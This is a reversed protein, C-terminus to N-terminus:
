TRDERKGPFMAEAMRSLQNMSEAVRESSAELAWKNLIRVLCAVHYCSNKDVIGAVRAGYLHGSDDTLTTKRITGEVSVGTGPLVPKECSECLPLVVSKM